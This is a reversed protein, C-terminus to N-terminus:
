IVEPPKNDNVKNAFLKSRTYSQELGLSQTYLEKFLPLLRSILIMIIKM